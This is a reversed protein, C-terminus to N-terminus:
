GSIMKRAEQRVSNDMKVKRNNLLPHVSVYKAILAWFSEKEIVDCHSSESASFEVM